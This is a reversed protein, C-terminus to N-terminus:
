LRYKLVAATIGLDNLWLAITHGEHDALHGYGGGPCVLIASGTAKGSAPRYLSITPIDEPKTGKAGPAGDAWLPMPKPRAPEQPTLSAGIGLILCLAIAGSVLSITM